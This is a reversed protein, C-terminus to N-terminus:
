VCSLQDAPASVRAKEGDRVFGYVRTEPSERRIAECVASGCTGSAGFVLVAPIVPRQGELTTQCTTLSQAEPGRGFTGIRRGLPPVFAPAGGDARCFGLHLLLLLCTTPPDAHLRM